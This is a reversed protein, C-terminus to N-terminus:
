SFSYRNLAPDSSMIKNLSVLVENSTVNENPFIQEFNNKVAKFFVPKDQAEIKMLTALANLTEGEGVSMERALRDLNSDTFMAIKQPVVGNKSCGLTGSTIGFTQNGSTGNTTAAMIQPALGSQGGFVMSGLGCGVNNGAAFASSIPFIVLATATLIFKKM